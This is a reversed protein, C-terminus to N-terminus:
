LFYTFKEGLLTAYPVMKNGMLPICDIVKDSTAFETSELGSIFVYKRDEVELLLTNGEVDSDNDAVGSFGTMNCFKSKGILVHKPKFSLFPPDFKNKDYNYVHVDGAIVVPYRNRFNHQM